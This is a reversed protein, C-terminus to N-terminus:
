CEIRTGGARSIGEDGSWGAGGGRREDDKIRAIEETTADGWAEGTVAEWVPPDAQVVPESVRAGDIVREARERDDVSRLKKFLDVVGGIWLAFLATVAFVLLSAGVWAVTTRTDGDWM